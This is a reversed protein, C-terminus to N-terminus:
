PKSIIARGKPLSVMALEICILIDGIHKMRIKLAAPKIEEIEDIFNIVEKISKSM